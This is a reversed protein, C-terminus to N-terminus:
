WWSHTHLPTQTYKLSPFFAEKRHEPVASDRRTRGNSAGGDGGGTPGTETDHHHSHLPPEAPMQENQESSHALLCKKSAVMQGLESRCSLQCVQSSSISLSPSLSLTSVFSSLLSSFFVSVFSPFLVAIKKDAHLYIFINGFRTDFLKSFRNKM